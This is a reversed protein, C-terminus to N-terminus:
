WRTRPRRSTRQRPEDPAEDDEDLSLGFLGALAELMEPVAPAERGFLRRGRDLQGVIMASQVMPLLLDITRALDAHAPDAQALVRARQLAAHVTSWPCREPGLALHYLAGAFPFTPQQPFEQSGRTAFDLLLKNGPFAQLCTCITQLDAESFPLHRARKLYQWVLKQHKQLGEYSTGISKFASLTTLLAVVSPGDVEAKLGRRFERTFRKIWARDLPMRIAEILMQFVAVLRSPAEQCARAFLEMAQQQQGAKLEVVALRCLVHSRDSSPEKELQARLIARAEDFQEQQARLRALGLRYIGLRATLTVDHPRAGVAREQFAVAEDWRQQRFADDALAELARQHEPFHELLHRAARGVEPQKGEAHLWDLLREHAQLNQPALEVSRRYCESAAVTCADEDDLQPPLPASLAAPLPPSDAAALEGMHLWLLSRALEVDTASVVNHQTLSREYAAWHDQADATYGQQECQLAQLRHLEPDDPPAGLVRAYLKIERDSGRQAVEWYMIRALRQRLEHCEPPLARQAEGARHLATSLAGRALLNRVDELAVLGAGAHLRQGFAALEARQPPPHSELFAADIQARFPTAIAAPARGPTLQRWPELAAQGDTYFVGLGQVLLKWDHLPSDSPLGAVAEHAAADDGQALAALAQLVRQTGLRTDEPLNALGHEGQLVAADARRARLEQLARGDAVRRTLQEATRWDGALMLESACRALLQPSDFEGDVVTRLMIAADAAQGSLRLQAARGVTAEVLWRRHETTPDQKCLEKALERASQFAGRAVAEATRKRLLAIDPRAAARRQKRTKSHGM